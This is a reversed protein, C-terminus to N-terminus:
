GTTWLTANHLRAAAYILATPWRWNPDAPSARLRISLMRHIPIEQGESMLGMALMAADEGREVLLRKFVEYFCIAPVLLHASDEIVPAFFDANPGDTFYELWGSSDLVNM